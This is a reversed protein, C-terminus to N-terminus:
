LYGVHKFKRIFKFEYYALGVGLLIFFIGVLIGVDNSDSFYSQVGWGGVGFSLLVSVSIFFVHFAKLSM